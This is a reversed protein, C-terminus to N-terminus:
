FITLDTSAYAVEMSYASCTCSCTCSCTRTVVHMKLGDMSGAATLAHVGFNTVYCCPFWATCIVAPNCAAEFQAASNEGEITCIDCIHIHRYSKRSSTWYRSCPVLLLENTIRSLNGILRFQSRAWGRHGGWALDQALSFPLYLISPLQM